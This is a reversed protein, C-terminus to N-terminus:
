NTTAITKQDAGALFDPVMSEEIAADKQCVPEPCLSGSIAMGGLLPHGFRETLSNKGSATEDLSEAM